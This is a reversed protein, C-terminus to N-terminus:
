DLVFNTLQLSDGFDRSPCKDNDSMCAMSAYIKQDNNNEGNNYEKQSACNVRESFRVQKQRKQNDKPLKPIKAILHDEYVCRFWKRPKRETRINDM